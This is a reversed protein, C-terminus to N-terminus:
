TMPHSPLYFNINIENLLDTETNLISEIGNKYIPWYPSRSYSQSISLFHKTRWRKDVIKKEFISEAHPGSVPITIWYDDKKNRIKNRNQVGNKQFQVDDLIIFMDSQAIKKFYAPWPLYQSQHISIRM